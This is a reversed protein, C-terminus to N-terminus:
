LTIFAQSKMDKIVMLHCYLAFFLFLIFINRSINKKMFLRIFIKHAERFNIKLELILDKLRHM